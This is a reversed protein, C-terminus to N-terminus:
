GKGRMETVLAHLTRTQGALDAVSRAANNMAQATQGAVTDVENIADAMERSSVAQEESATAIARVQTAAGDVISVIERLAEGSRGTLETAQEITQVAEDVQRMNKDASQQIARVANDVDTTSAMTKEALKRVEDAVVAFGRGSEGARAAEIAANLALLNTQDAIDSIVSMIRNVAQAHQGLTQMDEKLRRSQEQVSRISRTVELVVDAGEEAKQRAGASLEAASTANRSVEIVVASMQEMASATESIKRAQVEAGKKSQLIGASLEGSARNANSVVDEIRQCAGLIMDNKAATEQAAVEASSLAEEAERSKALAMDTQERAEEIKHKLTGVMVGLAANLQGVEDKQVIRPERLNGGAVERAYLVLRRLPGAISRTLFVALLVCVLLIGGSMALAVNRSQVLTRALATNSRMLDEDVLKIAKTLGERILLLNTAIGERYLRQMGQVDGKEHAAVIGPVAAHLALHPQELADLIPAVAPLRQELEERGEGYFWKGFTCQHGDTVVNLRTVTDDLLYAAVNAAWIFHANEAKLLTLESESSRDLDDSVGSIDGIVKFNYVTYLGVLLFIVGFALSLKYVLRIDRWRM